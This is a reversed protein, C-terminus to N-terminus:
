DAFLPRLRCSGTKHKGWSTEFVATSSSLSTQKDCEIDAVDSVEVEKNGLYVWVKDVDKLENKSIYPSRIRMTVPGLGPITFPLTRRSYLDNISVNKLIKVLGARLLSASDDILVLGDAGHSVVRMQCEYNSRADLYTKDLPTNSRICELNDSFKKIVVVNEQGSYSVYNEPIEHFLVM